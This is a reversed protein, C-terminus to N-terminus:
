NVIRLGLDAARKTVHQIESTHPRRHLEGDRAGIKWDPSYQGRISVFLNEFGSLGGLFEMAPLHCCDNHGPLVLVRVFVPVRQYLMKRIADTATDPYEAVGSLREGCRADMYKLDPVYADIVGDLLQMVEPTSYAHNNWVVPLRWDAPATGLFKLIEPMSEDPNGGVFSLSRAGKLDLQQWLSADLRVSGRSRPALIAHQQCFRCRLGCGHLNLVLSPNIPSEESIHVFHEAVYAAASLGCVGLEGRTRDVNCRRACLGCRRLMRQALLTKIDLLSAFSATDASTSDVEAKLKRMCEDHIGWLAGTSLARASEFSVPTRQARTALLKPLSFGPLRKSRVTFTPDIDRLLPLEAFGPDVIEVRGADDVRVRLSSRRM